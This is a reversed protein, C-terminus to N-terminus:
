KMDDNLSLVSHPSIFVLSKQPCFSSCFYLNHDWPNLLPKILAKLLLAVQTLLCSFSKSSSKEIPFAEEQYDFRAPLIIGTALWYVQHRARLSVVSATLQRSCASIKGAFSLKDRASM